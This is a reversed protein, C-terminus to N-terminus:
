KLLSSNSSCLSNIQFCLNLLKMGEAVSTMAAAVFLWAHQLIVGVSCLTLSGTGCSDARFRQICM